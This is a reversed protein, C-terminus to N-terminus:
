SLGVALGNFTKSLDLLEKGLAEREGGELFEGTLERFTMAVRRSRIDQRRIAHKWKYRAPGFVVILSGAPMEVSVEIDALKENSMTLYTMSLLNITVLREGWLWFDDFHPDIASGREPEYELNCLEVPRFDDLIGFHGWRRVVDECFAPLGSFVSINLKKKKFNM